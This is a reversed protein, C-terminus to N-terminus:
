AIVSVKACGVDAERGARAFVLRNIAIVPVRARRVTAVYGLSADVERHDVACIAVVPVGTRSRITADTAYARTYNGFSAAGSICAAVVRVRAGRVTATTLAADM